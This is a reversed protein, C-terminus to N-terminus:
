VFINCVKDRRLQKESEELLNLFKKWDDDLHNLLDVMDETM